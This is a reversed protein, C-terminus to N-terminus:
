KLQLLRVEMKVDRELQATCVPCEAALSQVFERAAGAGSRVLNPWGPLTCLLKPVRPLALRAPPLVHPLRPGAIPHPTTRTTVIVPTRTRTYVHPSRYALEQGFPFDQRCAGKGLM